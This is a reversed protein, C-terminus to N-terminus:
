VRNFLLKIKYLCNNIKESEDFIKMKILNKKYKINTDYESLMKIFHYDSENLFLNKHKILEKSYNSSIKKSNVFHEYRLKWISFFGSKMGLVNNDHQRYNIFSEHDVYIYCNNIMAIRAMHSDHMPVYDFNSTQVLNKLKVDFVMTCGTAYNKIMENKFSINEPLFTTRIYDLNQNVLNLTSFYLKGEKKSLELKSIARALKNKLWYDDQDAFAYYDAEENINLLKMFSKAPGVNEGEILVINKNKKMIRKIIDVTLDKSADDRIILKVKVDEQNLISNMQEEIYKEGNYTSMLVCVTKM